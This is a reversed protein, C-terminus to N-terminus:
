NLDAIDLFIRSKVKLYTIILFDCNHIGYM